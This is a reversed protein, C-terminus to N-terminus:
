HYLSQRSICSIHTQDRVWFSRLGHAVVVSGTSWFGPAAVVSDVHGAGNLLEQGAVLTYDESVAVLSFGL